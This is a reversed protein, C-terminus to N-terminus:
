QVHKLGASQINGLIENLHTLENSRFSTTTIVFTYDEFVHEDVTASIARM